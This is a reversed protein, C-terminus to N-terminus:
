YMLVAGEEFATGVVVLDAGAGYAKFLQKESRIGGGVILPVSIAKKVESIIEESVPFKAGSGAELYILKKGSFEGALATNKILEVEEQPIPKTQTVNEVASKRGGDILIYGSPIIELDAKKLIPAAKLQQGILFEPNRGSLLTLFLLGDALDSIQSVDGPFLVIPLSTFKKLVKVTKETMGPPVSSGGVFVHTTFSPIKLLFDKAKSIDFKEPDILITLMKEESAAKESIDKLINGMKLLKIM